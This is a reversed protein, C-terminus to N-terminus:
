QEGRRGRCDSHKGGGLFNSSIFIRLLESTFLYFGVGTSCGTQEGLNVLPNRQRCILANHLRVDAGTTSGEVHEVIVSVGAGTLRENIPTTTAVIVPVASHRLAHVVAAM